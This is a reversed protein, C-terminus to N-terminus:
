LGVLQPTEVPIFSRLRMRYFDTRRETRVRPNPDLVYEGGNSRQFVVWHWRNSDPRYNIAVIATDSISARQRVNRSKRAAIGYHQLLACLDSSSTYLTGAEVTMLALSTADALVRGYSREAIMAICAIGCGASHKQIIRRM